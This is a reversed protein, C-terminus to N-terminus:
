IHLQDAVREGVRYDYDDYYLFIHLRSNCLISRHKCTIQLKNVAQLNNILLVGCYLQADHELNPQLLHGIHDDRLLCRQLKGTHLSM